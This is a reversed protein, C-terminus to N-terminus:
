SPNVPLNNVTTILVALNAPNLGGSFVNGQFFTLLDTSFVWWFYNAIFAMQLQNTFGLVASMAATQDSAFLQNVPSVSLSNYVSEAIGSLGVADIFGWPSQSPPNSKLSIFFQQITPNTNAVAGSGFPQLISQLPSLGDNTTITPTNNNYFDIFPQFQYNFPNSSPPVQLQAQVTATSAPDSVGLSNLLPKIVLFYAAVAVGGLLVVDLTIDDGAGSLRRKRVM